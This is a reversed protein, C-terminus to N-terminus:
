TCGLSGRNGEGRHGPAAGWMAAPKGHGPHSRQPKKEWGHAAKSGRHAVGQWDQQRRPWTGAPLLSGMGPCLSGMRPRPAEKSKGARGSSRIWGPHQTGHLLATHQPWCGITVNRWCGGSGGGRNSLGTNGALSALAPARTKQPSVTAPDEMLALLAGTQLPKLREQAGTGVAQLVRHLGGTGGMCRGPLCGMLAPQAGLLPHPRVPCSAPAQAGGQWTPQVLSISQKWNVGAAVSPAPIQSGTCEQQVAPQGHVWAHTQGTGWGPNGLPRQHMARIGRGARPDGPQPQHSAAPSSIGPSADGPHSKSSCPACPHWLPPPPPRHM